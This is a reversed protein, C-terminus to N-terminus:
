YVREALHFTGKKESPSKKKCCIAAVSPHPAEKISDYRYVVKYSSISVLM